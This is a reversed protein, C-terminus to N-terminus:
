FSKTLFKKDTLFDLVEQFNEPTLMNMPETSIKYLIEIIPLNQQKLKIANYLAYTHDDIDAASSAEFYGNYAVQGASIEIYDELTCTLCMQDYRKLPEMIKQCLSQINSMKAKQPNESSKIINEIEDCKFKNGDKKFLQSLFYEEVINFMQAYLEWVRNYLSDGTIADIYLAFLENNTQTRKINTKLLYADYVIHGVEHRLTTELNEQSTYKVIAIANDAIKNPDKFRSELKTIWADYIEKDAKNKIRSRNLTLSSTREDHNVSSIEDNIDEIINKIKLNIKEQLKEKTTREKDYIIYDISAIDNADPQNDRIKKYKVFKLHTYEILDDTAYSPGTEEVECDENGPYLKKACEDIKKKQESKSLNAYDTIKVNELKFEKGVEKIRLFPPTDRDPDIVITAESDPPYKSICDCKANDTAKKATNSLYQGIEKCDKFLNKYFSKVNEKALKVDIKNNSTNTYIKKLSKQIEPETLYPLQSLCCGANKTVKMETHHQRFFEVPNESFAQIDNCLTNYYESSQVGLTILSLTLCARNIKKM